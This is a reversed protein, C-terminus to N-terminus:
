ESELRKVENWLADLDDLSTKEVSKGEDALKTEIQSFRNLFSDTSRSLAISPDVHIKRSLNVVSFLLDGVEKEIRNPEITDSVLESKLEDAEESIKDFVPRYDPWDFGLKAAAKQIELARLVSPLGKGASSVDSKRGETDTKIANWNRIVDDESEVTVNGFVHPHRRILKEANEELIHHLTVEHHEEMVAIALMLVLFLDGLEEEIHSPNGDNISSVVEFAEEIIYKRLSQLTQKRDWPCGDPARLRRIISSYALFAAGDEAVEHPSLSDSYTSLIDM